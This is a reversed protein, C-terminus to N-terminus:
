ALSYFVIIYSYTVNSHYFVNQHRKVLAKQIEDETASSRAVAMLNVLGGIREPPLQKSLMSQLINANDVARYEVGQKAYEKVTDVNIKSFQGYMRVALTTM